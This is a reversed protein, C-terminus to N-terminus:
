SIDNEIESVEDEINTRQGYACQIGQKLQGDLSLLLLSHFLSSIGKEQYVM